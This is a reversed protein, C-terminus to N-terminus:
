LLGSLKISHIKSPPKERKESKGFSKEARAKGSKSITTSRTPLRHTPRVASVSETSAKHMYSFAGIVLVALAIAVLIIIISTKTM